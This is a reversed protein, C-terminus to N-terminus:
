FCPHANYLAHMIYLLIDRSVPTWDKGNESDLHQGVGTPIIADGGMDGSHQWWIVTALGGKNAYSDQEM